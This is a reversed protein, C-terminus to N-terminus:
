SSHAPRADHMYAAIYLTGGDFAVWAETRESAPAGERPEAQVFGTAPEASRWLADDLVGDIRPPTAAAIAVLERRAGSAHPLSDAHVRPDAPAPVTTPAPAVASPPLQPPQAAAVLALAALVSLLPM